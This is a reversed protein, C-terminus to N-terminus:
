KKKYQALDVVIETSGDFTVVIPSREGSYVGKLLDKKPYPDIQEVGVRYSGIPVGDGGPGIITFTGDPRAEGVYSGDPNQPLAFSVRVVGNSSVKLPQGNNLVRGSVPRMKNGCGALVIFLGVSWAAVRYCTM